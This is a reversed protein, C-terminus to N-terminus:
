GLVAYRAEIEVPTGSLNKVELFYKLLTASQRTVLVKYEIQAPGDVAPSKPVVLWVVRENAKWSHTFWRGTSNAAVTGSFQVGFRM